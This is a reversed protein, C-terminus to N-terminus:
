GYILSTLALGTFQCAFQVCVLAKASKGHARDLRRAYRRRSTRRIMDSRDPLVITQHPLTEISFPGDIQPRM